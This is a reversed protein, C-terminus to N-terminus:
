LSRQFMTVNSIEEILYRLVKNMQTKPCNEYDFPALYDKYQVNLYSVAVPM